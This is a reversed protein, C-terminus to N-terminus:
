NMLVYLKNLLCFPIFPYSGSYQLSNLENECSTALDSKIPHIIGLTKNFCGTFKDIQVGNGSKYELAGDSYKKRDM